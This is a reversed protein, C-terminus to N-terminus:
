KKVNKETKRVGSLVKIIFEEGNVLLVRKEVCKPFEGEQNCVPVFDVRGIDVGDIKQGDLHYVELSVYYQDNMFTSDELNLNCNGILDFDSLTKQLVADAVDQRLHGTDSICDVIKDSLLEAEMARVDFPSSYFLMVGVVIAGAVLVLILFWYVSLIKEAAKKNNIKLKM